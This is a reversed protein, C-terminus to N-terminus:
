PNGGSYAFGPQDVDGVAWVSRASTKSFKDVKVFGRDDMEVGASELGLGKTLPDRGVAMMVEDADITTGDTLTVLKGDATAEIKEFETKCRVDIGKAVMEAHLNERVDNDFGRLIEESRYVVTVKSGLGAFICAFELAIYGGGNIVITERCGPFIFCM